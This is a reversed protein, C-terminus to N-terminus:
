SARLFRCAVLFSLGLFLVDLLFVRSAPHAGQFTSRCDVQLTSSHREIRWITDSHRGIRRITLAFQHADVMQFAAKNRLITQRPVSDVQFTSRCDVQLTQAVIELRLAVIEVRLSSRCDLRLSSGCDRREPRGFCGM